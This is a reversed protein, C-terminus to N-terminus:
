RNNSKDLYGFLLFEGGYYPVASKEALKPRALILFFFRPDFFLKAWKGIKAACFNGEPRDSVFDM